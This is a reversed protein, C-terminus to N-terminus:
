KELHFLAVQCGRNFSFMRYAETKPFLQRPRVSRRSSSSSSLATSSLQRAGTPVRHRTSSPSGSHLSHAQIPLLDTRDSSSRWPGSFSRVSPLTQLSRSLWTLTLLMSYWSRTADSTQWPTSNRRSSHIAQAFSPRPLSRLEATQRSRPIVAVGPSHAEGVARAPEYGQRLKEASSTARLVRPPRSARTFPTQTSRASGLSSRRSDKSRAGNSRELAKNQVNLGTSMRRLDSPIVLRARHGRLMGSVAAWGTLYPLHRMKPWACM